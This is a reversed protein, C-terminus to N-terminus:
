LQGGNNDEVGNPIRIGKLKIWIHNTILDFVLNIIWSIIYIIVVWLLLHGLMFATGRSVYKEINIRDLIYNHILFSMFAAKGASNIVKNQTKINKFMVFLCFTQLIVLPNHYVWASRLGHSSLLDNVNAWGFIILTSLLFVSICNKKKEFFEPIGLRRLSAGCCYILAFNVINFGQQSGWAGISDLGYWENNLIEESLDVVTPYVSFLGIVTFIFRKLGKESLSNIVHNLYPSLIYLVIYLIVFYSNPILMIVVSKLDTSRHNIIVRLLFVAIHIIESLALLKIIPCITRKNTKSLFFGSIFIYGDVAWICMSEIAKLSLDCVVSHDFSVARSYYHLIIVSFAALIRFIEIGSEREKNNSTAQM